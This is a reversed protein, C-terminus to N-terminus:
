GKEHRAASRLWRATFSALIAVQDQGLNSDQLMDLVDGPVTGPIHRAVNTIHYAEVSDDYVAFFLTQGSEGDANLDQARGGGDKDFYVIACDVMWTRKLRTEREELQQVRRMELAQALIDGLSAGDDRSLM